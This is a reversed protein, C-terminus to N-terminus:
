EHHVDGELLKLPLRVEIQTGGGPRSSLQFDAGILEAREKMIRLGHHSIIPLQEPDFGCGDDRVRLTLWHQDQNWTIWVKSAMAHKRVNGLAEQIIRLLQANAVPSLNLEPTAEAVVQIQSAESFEQYLSELWSSFSAERPDMRLGDIAERADIYAQQLQDEIDLLSKRVAEERGAEQWGITQAMRLKLYGLTQSLGDHIERALRSREELSAKYEVKQFLLHNEILLSAQTAVSEVIRVQRASIKSGPDTWLVLSGLWGAESRLPAVLLSHGDSSDQPTLDLDGTLIPAQSEKVASAISVLFDDSPGNESRRIEIANLNESRVLYVAGGALELARLTNSLVLKLQKDLDDLTRLERLQHFTELEKARLLHSELAMSMSSSMVQLLDEQEATLHHDDALYINLTGFFRDGRTLDLCYVSSVQLAEPAENLLPCPSDNSAQKAKCTHCAANDQESALHAAWRKFEDPSLRGHHYAPMPKGHQDHRILSVGQTSLVQEPLKLITSILEEEDATETIRREVSILFELRRNVKALEDRSRRTEREAQETEGVQNRLSTLALWALTPGVLGYFTVQTLFHTWRPLYFLYAHEIWQHLLVLLLAFFAAQWRLRGIRRYLSQSADSNEEAM